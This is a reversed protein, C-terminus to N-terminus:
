AIKPPLWIRTFGTSTLANEYFFSNSHYTPLLTNDINSDLLQSTLSFTPCQCSASSCSDGCGEGQKSHNDLGKSCCDMASSSGITCCAKEVEQSIIGCAYSIAPNLVFGLVILLVIYFQKIMIRAFM